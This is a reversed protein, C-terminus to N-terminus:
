AGWKEEVQRLVDALIMSLEGDLYKDIMALAIVSFYAWGDGEDYFYFARAVANNIRALTVEAQLYDGSSVEAVSNRVDLDFPSMPTLLMMACQGLEHRVDVNRANNRNDDAYRQRMDADIAEASETAAYALSWAPDPRGNPLRQTKWRDGLQERLDSVAQIMEGLTSIDM